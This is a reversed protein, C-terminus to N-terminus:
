TLRQKVTGGTQYYGYLPLGGAAAAADDAYSPLAQGISFMATANNDRFIHKPGKYSVSTVGPGHSLEWYPNGTSNNLQAISYCNPVGTIWDIRASSNNATSNNIIRFKYEGNINKRMEGGSGDYLIGSKNGSPEMLGIATVPLSSLNNVAGTVCYTADINVLSISQAGSNIQVAYSARGTGGYEEGRINAMQVNRSNSDILSAPYLGSGAYSTTVFVVNALAVDWGNCYLGSRQCLGIRSDSIQISRTYSGGNDALIAFAYDDAGGQGTHGTLNNIDCATFKFASGAEISVARNKFGEAEFDFANLFQPYYSGSIGPNVVRLGYAAHLVRCHNMVMTNCFGSWLICTANSWQGEVIVNDLTLVDSRTSGDIPCHWYIGHLSAPLNPAIVTDRITIDNTGEGIDFGTICYEVSLREFVCRYAKKVKISAGATKGNGNVSMSLIRVDRITSAGGDIVIGDSAGNALDIYTSQTGEGMLTIFSSDITLTGTVRYKGAPFFLIGGGSNGSVKAKVANIGAQIAATDDAVGNGVAGFDKVSVIERLKTQVTTPVAGTGEPTYGILSAGAPASFFSLLYDKIKSLVMRVTVGDQVVPILENGNAASSDPLESIKKM